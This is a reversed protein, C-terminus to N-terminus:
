RQQFVNMARGRAQAKMQVARGRGLGTSGEGPRKGVRKFMPAKRLLDPFIMFRVKSGRIFVNELQSVRGDRATVQTGEMQARAVFGAPHPAM